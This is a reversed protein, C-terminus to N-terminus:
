EETHGLDMLRKIDTAVKRRLDGETEYNALELRLEELKAEDLDSIKTSPEINLKSCINM